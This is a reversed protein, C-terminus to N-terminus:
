DGLAFFSTFGFLNIIIARVESSNSERINRYSVAAVSQRRSEGAYGALRQMLARSLSLSVGESKTALLRTRFARMQLFLSLRDLLHPPSSCATM